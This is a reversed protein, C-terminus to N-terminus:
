KRLRKGRNEWEKRTKEVFEIGTSTSKLIGFAKEIISKKEIKTLNIKGNDTTFFVTDGVKIDNLLRIDKPITVQYNRTIKGLGM